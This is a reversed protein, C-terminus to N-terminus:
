RKRMEFTREIGATTELQALESRLAARRDIVIHKKLLAVEAILDNWAQAPVQIIANDPMPRLQSM